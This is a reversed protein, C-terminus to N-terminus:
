DPIVHDFAGGIEDEGVTEEPVKLAPLVIVRSTVLITAPLPATLRPSFAPSVVLTALRWVAPLSGCSTISVPVVEGGGDLPSGVIMAAPSMAHLASLLPAEHWSWAVESRTM